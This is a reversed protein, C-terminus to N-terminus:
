KVQYIFPKFRKAKEINQRLEWAKVYIEERLTNTWSRHKRKLIRYITKTLNELSNVTLHGQSDIVIKSTRSTTIVAHMAAPKFMESFDYTLSTKGPRETHLVGVYPDLGSAVLAHTCLSYIIAYAYNIASNIPDVSKPDRGTFEYEKPIHLNLLEWLKKSWKAEYLRLNEITQIKDLELYMSKEITDVEGLIWRVNEGKEIDKYTFYRLVNVMGALKGEIFAKGVNIRWSPNDIINYLKRRVEAIRVDFPSLMFTSAKRGHILLPVGAQSLMLAVGSSLRVRSGVVVVLELDLLPVSSTEWVVNGNSDKRPVSIVVLSGRKSVKAIGKIVLFM